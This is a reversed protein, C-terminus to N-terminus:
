KSIAEGYIEVREYHWHSQYVDLGAYGANPYTDDKAEICLEGDYYVKIDSGKISLTLNRFIAPRKAVTIEEILNTGAYLQVKINKSNVDGATVYAYYGGGSADARAYVGAKAKNYNWSQDVYRLRAEITVDAYEAATYDSKADSKDGLSYERGYQVKAIGEPRWDRMDGPFVVNQDSPKQAEEIAVNVRLISAYLKNIQKSSPDPAFATMIITYTGDDEKILCCPTRASNVFNDNGAWDMYGTLDLTKGTWHVGDFSYGYGVSHQNSLDDYVCFYVTKGNIEYINVFPNESYVFVPHGDFPVLTWPGEIKEAALLGNTWQPDEYNPTGNGGFSYYTDGAKYVNGFSVTIGNDFGVVPLPSGREPGVDRFEWTTGYNEWDIDGLDYIGAFEDPLEYRYVYAGRWFINWCNDAENWFWSSSWTNNKPDAYDIANDGTKGTGEVITAIRVWNSADESQWYGVRGPVSGLTEPHPKADFLETMLMHYTGGIKLVYGNEYGHDNGASGPHNKDIVVESSKVSMVFDMNSDETNQTHNYKFHATLTVNQEPMDFAIDATGTDALTVGETNWGAFEWNSDPDPVASLKVTEGTKYVASSAGQIYGGGSATTKLEFFENDLFFADAAAESKFFVIYKVYAISGGDTDPVYGFPVIRLGTIKDEPLFAPGWGPDYCTAKYLSYGETNEYFDGMDWKNQAGNLLATKFDGGGTGKNKIHSDSYSKKMCVVAYPYGLDWEHEDALGFDMYTYPMNLERYDEHPATVIKLADEEDSYSLEAITNNASHPMFMDEWDADFVFGIYEGENGFNLRAQSQTADETDEMNDTNETNDSSVPLTEGIEEEKEKEKEKSNECSFVAFLMLALMLIAAIKKLRNAGM